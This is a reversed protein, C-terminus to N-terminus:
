CCTAYHDSTEKHWRAFFDLVQRHDDKRFEVSDPKQTKQYIAVLYDTDIYRNVHREEFGSTVLLNHLANVSFRSPHTDGSYDSIYYHLPKKFPVLIRSGTAVLIHGGPRLLEWAADVMVRCSRCNELTWMITVIDFRRESMKSDELFDEITGEFCPISAETMDACNRESPEIGFLEAGYGKERLNTLFLGEGAGIDCLMKGKLGITSDVFEAVYTHRATVAPIKATYERGFMEDSWMRAIAESSRRDQVYVFGCNRCVHISSQPRWERIVPIEAADDVGCIECAFREFEDTM